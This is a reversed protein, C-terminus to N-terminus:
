AECLWWMSSNAPSSAAASSPIAGPGARMATIDLTAAAGSAPGSISAAYQTRLRRAGTRNASAIAWTSSPPALWTMSTLGCGSSAGAISCSTAWRESGTATSAVSRRPAPAGASKASAAARANTAPSAGNACSGRPDRTATGAYGQCRWGYQGAGPM